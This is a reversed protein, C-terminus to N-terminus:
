SRSRGLTTHYAIYPIGLCVFWSFSIGVCTWFGYLFIKNEWLHDSDGTLAILIFIVGVFLGLVSCLISWDFWDCTFTVVHEFFTGDNPPLPAGPGALPRKTSGLSFSGARRFGRSRSNPSLIYFPVENGKQKSGNTGTENLDKPKVWTTGLKEHAYYTRGDTTQHVTWGMSPAKPAGYASTQYKLSDLNMAKMKEREYSPDITLSLQPRSKQKRASERDYKQIAEDPNQMAMLMAGTYGGGGGGRPGTQRDIPHSM